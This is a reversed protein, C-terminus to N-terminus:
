VAPDFLDDGTAEHYATEGHAHRDIGELEQALPLRLPLILGVLKLLVFTAALTYALTAVVAILQTLVLKPNGALLGNAGAENLSQRAFVGTLLSGCMGGVGHCAFVDLTDDLNLRTRWQIAAYGVAATIGGIAMAAAPSVFGAAPTIGVLGVVAATAAGVATAKGARATEIALWVLVAAAASLHTTVLALSALGGATLASGANFGLWGFWLLGAGLLVFPVNHPRLPSRKVDARAGVLAAAVLAAAGAAIHVVTGGAFDLAGSERIWGGLGWVWHAVPAYVGVCWLAVFLLYARFDMRGVVAGATLAPAIVAFMGQFAAFALHPVTAAYDAQPEGGVGQFGAWALGGILAGGPAFALSYGILAWVLAAVCLAGITMMLTNLVHRRSVLGGYFFALGPTMLFVLAASTLLWATDGASIGTENM